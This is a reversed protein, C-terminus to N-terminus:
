AMRIEREALWLTADRKSEFTQNERYLWKGKEERRSPRPFAQKGDALKRETITGM